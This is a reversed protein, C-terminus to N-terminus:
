HRAFVRAGREDFALTAYPQPAGQEMGPSGPVMGPVALGRVPSRERLLLKIDEAPVHGEILYGAVIATHCSHLAPPVGFDRKVSSVDETLKVEVQFGSARLHAVWQGCCGCELGAYVMVPPLGGRALAPPLAALAAGAGLARLLRRRATM